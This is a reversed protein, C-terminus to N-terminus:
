GATGERKHIRGGFRFWAIGGDADRLFDGRSAKMPPDLTIVQDERWFALRVPPIPPPPTADKDPFPDHDVMKMLLGGDVVSLELTNLAAAYNGVYATLKEEPLHLLDPEPESLGLYQQLTYKVVEDNVEGGRDANTLVTIAFRRAPVLVFASKQGNTSGGHRVTQVGDVKKRLWSVGVEEAMNGAPALASQMFQMSEPTLLREGDPTTGDGLHFRAYRLQDRVSSTVGGAPHACRPLAWPRAVVPQEDRVEHGVAFRYTMIENAFFFSHKLGLPELVLERLANEYSKGTVVEIVRGALYFGSNNYSWVAGLPTWQPLDGIKAVVKALADDGPGMDEFYDGTWGGTHTFLHRLTVRETVEEDRMRLDPLYERIPTELDLKGQEVLRMAATATMTKTTSGIQFLTDADVPLPHDVNTVGLGGVYERGEFLIGVAVGPVHLREMEKAAYELLRQFQPDQETHVTPASM